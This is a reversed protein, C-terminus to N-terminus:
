LYNNLVFQCWLYLRNDSRGLRHERLSNQIFELDLRGTKEKGLGLKGDKFWSGVPVGFGKKKRYLIENPLMGEYAKKLLYKTEGHRFKYQWPIRRVFDVVEIDLFPSRAELSNMMTARDTKVLCNESLYMKSFFQIARDVLNDQRCSDWADIAESYLEDIEIPEDFLDNIETPTLPSMWLPLWYKPEFGMGRLSRKIKFDWSMNKHSVPLRSFLMEIGRHVGSGVLKRYQKAWWLAKFPDYGAFLEDGGDGGLVVTVEEKAFQSLLYTPILSSDGMPEDLMGMVKGVVERASKLLFPKMHHDTGLVRAVKRAYMSEDFNAEKFGISFTKVQSRSAGSAELAIVSSDIGGSLFVGVPVDAVLRRKVAGSMLERLRGGWEIEPNRPVVSFPEIVLDWYRWTRIKKRKIDYELCCGGPLKFIEEYLSSPSPIYGYAFYKKLSLTSLVKKVGSHAVLSKLESAFVFTQNQVTYYLPKKGFRDRSAFIVKRERDYIVFAWMGNLRNPLEKGWKQYGCLVTETDSHDSSFEYGDAILEKRIEAFNYVEGNYVIGWRKDKSWMPQKGGLLDIIALRRMGMYVEEERNYWSGGADPGRHELLRMMRGLDNLDGRGVFGCIGCM